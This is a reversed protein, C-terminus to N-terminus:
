TDEQPAPTLAGQQILVRGFNAPTAARVVADPAETM